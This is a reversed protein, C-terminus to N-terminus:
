RAIFASRVGGQKKFPIEIVNDQDEDFSTCIISLPDPKIRRGGCSNLPLLSCFVLVLNLVFRNM